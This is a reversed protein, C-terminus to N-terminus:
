KLVEVKYFQQSQDAVESVTMDTGLFTYFGRSQWTRLDESSYLAIVQRPLGAFILSFARATPGRQVKMEVPPAPERMVTLTTQLDQAGKIRIMNWRNRLTTFGVTGDASDAVDGGYRSDAYIHIGAAGPCTITVPGTWEGQLAWWLDGDADTSIQGMDETTSGAFSVPVSTYAATLLIRNAYDDNPPSDVLGLELSFNTLTESYVDFQYEEGTRARFATREGSGRTIMTLQDLDTGKYVAISPTSRLTARANKPSTWSYWVSPFATSEGAEATAGILTGTNTISVGSLLQRSAFNDNPPPPPPQYHSIELELQGPGGGLAFLVKDGAHLQLHFGFPQNNTLQLRSIPVLNNLQTGGFITGVLPNECERAKLEYAGASPATWEWWLTAPPAYLSGFIVPMPEGPERTAETNDGSMLVQEGTVQIRNTFFDNSPPPRFRFNLNGTGFWGSTAAIAIRYVGGAVVPCEIPQSALTNNAVLTLSGVSNGTYVGMVPYFTFDQMYLVLKGNAPATWKYWISASNPSDGHHPEGGERTAGYTYIPILARNTSITIAASFADNTASPYIGLEVRPDPFHVAAPLGVGIQYVQGANANFTAYGNTSGVVLSLSAVASGTFIRVSSNAAVAFKGTKPATWTWWVTGGIGAEWRTSEGSDLSSGAIWGAATAPSETLSIRNTFRDNIPRVAFTVPAAALTRGESNTTTASVVYIDPPQNSLLISPPSNSLVHQEDSGWLRDVTLTVGNVLGDFAMQPPSVQVPVHYSESFEANNTPSTIRLTSFSHRLTFPGYTDYTSEGDEDSARIGDVAIHYVMGNTVPFVAMFPEDRPILDLRGLANTIRSLSNVISGTFVGIQPSFLGEAFLYLSGTAPAIWTYWLTKGLADSNIAPEGSQKSANANNGAITGGISALTTRNAFTDNSSVGIIELQVPGAGIDETAVVIYYKRGAVASFVRPYDSYTTGGVPSLSSLSNGTYVALIGTAQIAVTGSAAATWSWWLSKRASTQVHVPENPEETAYTTDGTASVPLGTLVTAGAFFDNTAIGVSPALFPATLQFANGNGPSAIRIAYQVGAQVEVLPGGSSNILPVYTLNSVTAGTFATVMSGAEDDDIPVYLKGNTPATFAYWVSADYQGSEGQERTATLTTGHIPVSNGPLAIRNTFNDNPIAPFAQQTVRYPGMTEEFSDWALRYLTGAVIPFQLPKVRFSSSNTVQTLSSVSNGTYIGVCPFAGVASLLMQGSFPATWNWWLSHGKGFATHQPEGPESSAQLNDVTFETPNNTLTLAKAFADNVLNSSLLYISVAPSDRTWGDAGVARAIISHPGPQSGTWTARYPPAVPSGVVVGDVLLDIRSLVGDYPTVVAEIPVNTPLAFTSTDTPSALMVTSLKLNCMFMSGENYRRDLAVYYTTGAVADFTVSPGAGTVAQRQLSALSTGTLVDIIPPTGLYESATITAKGSAPAMWDFWVSRGSSGRGIEGSEFTAGANWVEFTVPAGALSQHASFADNPPPSLLQLSLIIEGENASLSSISIQYTVGAQAQFGSYSDGLWESVFVLNSVSSGTYVSITTGSAAGLQTTLYAVGTRPAAWTWWISRSIPLGAFVIAREGPELTAGVNSGMTTENTGTIPIRSSFNDNSPGALLNATLFIFSTALPM